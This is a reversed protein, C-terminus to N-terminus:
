FHLRQCVLTQHKLNHYHQGQELKISCRQKTLATVWWRLHNLNEFGWVELVEWPRDQLLVILLKTFIRELKRFMDLKKWIYSSNDFWSSGYICWMCHFMFLQTILMDIQSRFIWWLVSKVDASIRVCVDLVLCPWFTVHTLLKLVVITCWVQSIIRGTLM